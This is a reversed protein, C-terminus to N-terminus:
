VGYPRPTPVALETAGLELSLGPQSDGFRRHLKVTGDARRPGRHRCDGLLGLDLAASDVAVKWVLIGQKASARHM